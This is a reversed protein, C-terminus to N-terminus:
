YMKYSIVAVIMGGFLYLTAMPHLREKKKVSIIMGISGLIVFVLGGILSIIFM